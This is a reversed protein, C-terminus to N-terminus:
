ASCDEPRQVTPFKPERKVLPYKDLWKSDNVMTIYEEESPCQLSDRWLLELGQGRHLSM